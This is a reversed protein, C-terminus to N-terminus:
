GRDVSQLVRRVDMEHHVMEHATHRFIWGLDRETPEPFSYICDRSLQEDSLRQVLKGLLKASVRLEACVESIAEEQYGGNKARQDRYMPTFAPKYEVLALLVRERQVLLVDRVHCAYEIASWTAPEPRLRLVVEDRSGLLRCIVNVRSKFIEATGSAKTAGYDFGCESCPGV